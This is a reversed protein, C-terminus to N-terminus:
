NKKEPFFGKSKHDRNDLGRKRNLGRRAGGGNHNVDGGGMSTKNKNHHYKKTNIGGRTGQTGSELTQV